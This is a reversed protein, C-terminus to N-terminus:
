KKVIFDIITTDNVSDNDVNVYDFDVTDFDKIIVNNDFPVRKIGEYDKPSSIQYCYYSGDNNPNIIGFAKGAKNYIIEDCVYGERKNGSIGGVFDNIKSFASKYGNHKDGEKILYIISNPCNYHSYVVDYVIGNHKVKTSNQEKIYPVDDITHVKSTKIDLDVVIYDYGKGGGGSRSKNYYLVNNHKTIDDFKSFGRSDSFSGGWKIGVLLHNKNKTSDFIKTGKKNVRYEGSVGFVVDGSYNISSDIVSKVDSIDESIKRLNSIFELKDDLSKLIVTCKPEYKDFANAIVNGNDLKIYNAM